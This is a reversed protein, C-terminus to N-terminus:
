MLVGFSCFSFCNTPLFTLKLSFLVKFVERRLGKDASSYYGNRRTALTSNEHEAYEGFPVRGNVDNYKQSWSEAQKDRVKGGFAQLNSYRPTTDITGYHSDKGEFCWCQRCWYHLRVYHGGHICNWNNHIHKYDALLTLECCFYSYEFNKAFPVSLEILLTLATIGIEYVSHLWVWWLHLLHSTFYIM